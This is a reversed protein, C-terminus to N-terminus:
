RKVFKITEVTSRTKIKVVYNGIPLFNVDLSVDRQNAEFYHTSAYWQKGQLDYLTIDAENGEGGVLVTLKEQVPNPFLSSSENWYFVEKYVGQCDLPTKITVINLGKKLDLTLQNTNTIEEKRSNHELIFRKSGNVTLSLSNKAANWKSSVSLPAPQAITTAYCQEFSPRNSSTVCILYDGSELDSIRLPQQSTFSLNQSYGNPGQVSAQYNFQAVAIISIEGNNNEICTEDTKTLTFNLQSDIDCLDGEGDQDSDAQEPNSILPCNDQSDVILDSDSNTEPLGNLCFELQFTEISGSDLEADDEIELQWSGQVSTGYLSTIDSSPSYEGIFPASASEISMEAEADFVTNQYNEAPGGLNQALVYREGAPSILTLTLDGVYTHLISITINLDIIILDDPIDVNLTTTQPGSANADLLSVPLNTSEFRSCAFLQTTFRRTESPTSEGCISRSIVRWYYTTESLLDGVNLSTSVTTSNLALTSFDASESLQVRYDIANEIPNWQLSTGGLVDNVGDTPSVLNPSDIESSAFTALIKQNVTVGNRQGVLQFTFTGSYDETKSVQITGTTNTSSLQNPTITAELGEPLNVASLSVAVTSTDSSTYTFTYSLADVDCAVQELNEIPLAFTQTAIGFSTTNVAFYINNTPEIKIRAQDTAVGFPVKIFAKGNNPVSEKLVYDFHNGGDLSLLIRVASTAIPAQDTNAVNWQILVSEGSKWLLNESAQSQVSFPGANEIVTLTKEDLATFGYGNPNAQNRDRVSVGWRLTRGVNSVSEWPTDVGPNRDTLQNSLVSSMMPIYRTNSAKPPLSRNISGTRLTASFNLADVVASDLQEWCYTLADDDTDTATATLVYPTGKPISIDPGADVMPQTNTATVSAECSRTDLYTLMDQINHYHFYPDSHRQINNLGVIGAYSMITSGSGPESNVGTGEVDYAFSHTAGFQHGVEHLVYDVDFYDTLFEGESGNTATFSHTSFASGKRSNRCIVGIGGANGNPSGRDFLHGVDYNGEGMRNTLVQQVESNLDDGFPSTTTNTYLLSADSVLILRVGLDVEMVENMRNVTNVVAAFADEANSGNEPDNDGWFDTYGPTGVVAFRYTRFSSLAKKEQFNNKPAGSEKENPTSCSFPNKSPELNKRLYFLYGEPNGKKPQLLLDGSPTRLTAHVGLPTVSLRIFVGKRTQSQGRYTSINPYRKALEPSLLPIEDLAFYEVQGFENPFPLLIGKKQIANKGLNNKFQVWQLQAHEVKKIPQQAGLVTRSNENLRDITWFQQGLVFFPIFFLFLTLKNKM